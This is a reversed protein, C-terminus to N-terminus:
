TLYVTEQRTLCLIEITSDWDCLSNSQKYLLKNLSVDFFVDLTQRVPWKHPYDVLWCRIGRVFSTHHPFWKWTMTAGCPALSMLKWSMGYSTPRYSVAYYCLNLNNNWPFWCLLAYVMVIKELKHFQFPNGLFVKICSLSQLQHISSLIHCTEYKRTQDPTKYM